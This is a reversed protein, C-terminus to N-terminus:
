AGIPLHCVADKTRIFRLNSEQYSCWFTATIGFQNPLPRCFRKIHTRTGDAVGIQPYSSLPLMVRQWRTLAPDNGAVRELIGGEYLPMVTTEYDESLPEIGNPPVM